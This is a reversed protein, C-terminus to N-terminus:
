FLLIFSILMSCNIVLTSVAISDSILFLPLSSFLLFFFLIISAIALIISYVTYYLSAFFLVSRFPFPQLETYGFPIVTSFSASTVLSTCLNLAPFQFSKICLLLSDAERLCKEFYFVNISFAQDYWDKKSFLPGMKWFFCDHSISLNNTFM